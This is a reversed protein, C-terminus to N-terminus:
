NLWRPPKGSPPGKEDEDRDTMEVSRLYSRRQKEMRQLKWRLYSKRLGGVYALMAFEALFHPVFGAFGYFLAFLVTGGITIWILARGQVPLVFYINITREPFLTAYAIILAESLPWNGAHGILYVDNWLFRGILATAMGVGAAFGFYVALFRAYGWTRCLDRGFWYLMLCAFVLSLPQGEFFIWTVLRWLEFQFIKEPLLIGYSIVPIGNRQCIAGGISAVLTLIILILIPAPMDFRWVRYNRGFAGAPRAM